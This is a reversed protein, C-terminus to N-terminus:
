LAVDLIMMILFGVIFGLSGINASREGTDQMHAEPILEQVVVYIMCGAALSLCIPMIGQIKQALVAALVGFIPEVVASISGIIFAKGRSMGESVLPLSVATGEPYNQIAIGITLAIAGSLLSADAGSELAMAFAVGVAMGEPINHVVIALVMMLVNKSLEAPQKKGKALAKEKSKHGLGGKRCFRKRLHEVIRDSALLLAVGMIFGVTVVLWGPQSNNEAAEIGPLLLSWVSAAIMVGAAFGLFLRQVTGSVCKRILFVNAAGITTLLWTFMTGVLTYLIAQM